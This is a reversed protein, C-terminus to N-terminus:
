KEGGQDLRKLEDMRKMLQLVKDEEGGDDAARVLGGLRRIERQRLKKVCDNWVQEWNQTLTLEEAVFARALLPRTSEDVWSDVASAAPSDASRSEVNKLWQLTTAVFEPEQVSLGLIEGQLLRKRADPVEAGLRLLVWLENPKEAKVASMVSAPRAVPTIKRVSMGGRLIAPDTGTLKAAESVIAEKLYVNGVSQIITALEEMAEAKKSVDSEGKFFRNVFFPLMPEAKEVLALFAGRGEEQIFTDPDHENPLVVVKTRLGQPLLARMSRRAAKVGAEDGDFVVIVEDVYKSLLQAHHETLATGLTAVAHEVGHFRLAVQDMYGEVVIAKKAKRIAEEAACLGYLLKGKDFVATQSSNLYKPTGDGLVRGGFGVMNGKADEIPFLLRDRFVDYFGEERPRKAILGAALADEVPQHDKILANFLSQWGEPAFGLKVLSAEKEKLGRSIAYTRAKKAEPANLFTFHYFDRAYSLVRHLKQRKEKFANIERAEQQYRSLDVGALNALRELAEPFTLHGAKMLYTFVTGGEGCGFCHYLQKQDSVTFSPSKENHFPCLGVFNRGSKKLPVSDGIVRVIDVRSRIEDIVEPPVAL